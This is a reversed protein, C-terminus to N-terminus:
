PLARIKELTKRASERLQDATRHHDPFHEPDNSFYDVEAFLWDLIQFLEESIPDKDTLYKKLYLDEFQEASIENKVFQEILVDFGYLNKM